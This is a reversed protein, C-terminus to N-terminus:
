DKGTSAGILESYIVFGERSLGSIIHPMDRPDISSLDMGDIDFKKFGPYEQALAFLLLERRSGAKIAEKFGPAGTNFVVQHPDGSMNMVVPRADDGPADYTTVMFHTDRICLTEMQGIVTLECTARVNPDSRDYGVLTASCPYRPATFTVRKGNKDVEIEGVGVLSWRLDGKLKDANVASITVSGGTAVTAHPTSLRFVRKSVIQFAKVKSHPTSPLDATVTGVGVQAAVMTLGNDTIVHDKCRAHAHIWVLDSVDKGMGKRIRATVEVTEGLEFERRCSLQIPPKKGGSGGEEGDDDLAGSGDGQSHQPKKSYRSNCIDRISAIEREVDNDVQGAMRIQLARQVDPAIRNLIDLLVVIRPDDVVEARITTRNEMAYEGLFSTAMTGCVERLLFVQPFQERYEGLVRFLNGVSAEGIEVATLRLDEEARRKRPRYIEMHVDGIQPDVENYTFVEGIIDKQPLQAGDIYLVNRFKLPLRAALEQALKAGRLIRKSRTNSLVYTLETGFPHDFPWTKATKKVRKPTLVGRSLALKEYGETSFSFIYVYDPDDKPATLVEVMKAMSYLFQKTGTCFTGSQGEGATTLNISAFADRNAANMGSGDDRVVLRARDETKVWVMGAGWDRTNKILEMLCHLFTLGGFIRNFFGPGIGAQIKKAMKDEETKKQDAIQTLL